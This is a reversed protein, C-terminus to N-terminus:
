FIVFVVFFPTVENIRCSDSVGFCRFNFFGSGFHLVFLLVIIVFTKWLIFLSKVFM